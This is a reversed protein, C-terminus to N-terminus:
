EKAWRILEGTVIEPAEEHPFHGVGDLLRWEYAAAVYRSSGQATDPLVCGDVSGHLQLTPIDLPRRLARRFRRGDSRLVSRAAWRYYELACHPAGLVLM